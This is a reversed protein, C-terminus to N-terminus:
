HDLLPFRITEATAISNEHEATMQTREITGANRKTMVTEHEKVIEAMKGPRPIEAELHTNEM